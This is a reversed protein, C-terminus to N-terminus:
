YDPHPLRAHSFMRVARGKLQVDASTSLLPELVHVHRVCALDIGENYRNTAVLVQIVSGTDNDPANFARVTDKVEEVSGLMAVSPGTASADYGFDRYGAFQKLARVVAHAGHGGYGRREHFASYVFHKENPYKEVNAVLAAIKSSFVALAKGRPFEHMSNSYARAPKWYEREEGGDVLEALYSPPPQPTVKTVLEAVQEGSMTSTHIVESLRPYRTTDGSADYYSLTGSVARAFDARTEPGEGWKLPLPGTTVLDLLRLVDPVMDGLTATLLLLKAGQLLESDKRALMDYLAAYEKDHGQGPRLLTHAEDIILLSDVLHRRWADEQVDSAAQRGRHLQMHHALKAFTWHEVGRKEFSQKVQIRSNGSWHQLDLDHACKVFSDIGNAAAAEVNTVYVIRRESKWAAEMAAVATCTKGSGTSHWVILGRRADTMLVRVDEAVRSQHPALRPSGVSPRELVRPLDSEGEVVEM